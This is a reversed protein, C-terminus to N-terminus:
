PLTLAVSDAAPLDLDRVTVLRSPSDLDSYVYLALRRQVASPGYNSVRVFASWGQGAAGPDLSLAAVAQNEGSQGIPIYRLAATASWQQPLRVGGDSLLVVQANPEGAALAAALELATAVDAGAPGPRLGDLARGLLARDPSASLLVKAEAEAAILTVPVGAPLQGALRRAQEAAAALRNPRVDTAAMSASADIVLILHDGAAATTWTFPRVLALILAALLLLQLLLLLNPRLRQWPANAAVDRVLTRWLYTSSVRQEDRRLKLFYLAVVVPLLAALGFALPTLFNM